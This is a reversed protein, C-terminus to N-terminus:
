GFHLALMDKLQASLTALRAFINSLGNRVCDSGNGPGQPQSPFCHM